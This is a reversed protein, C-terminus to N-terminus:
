VCFESSHKEPIITTAHEQQYGVHIYMIYTYWMGLPSDIHLVCFLGVFWIIWYLDNYIKTYFM